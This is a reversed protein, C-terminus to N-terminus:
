RRRVLPIATSEAPARPEESEGQVYEWLRDGCLVKLAGGILDWAGRKGPVHGRVTGQKWVKEGRLDKSGDPGGFMTDRFLRVRYRREGKRVGIDPRDENAQGLLDITGISLVREKTWDGQPWMCLKVVVM